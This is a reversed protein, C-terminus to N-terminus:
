VGEALPGVRRLHGPHQRGRLHGSPRGAWWGRLSLRRYRRQLGAGASQRRRDVLVTAGDPTFAIGRPDGAFQGPGSGESGFRLQEAGGANFVIIERDRANVVYLDSTGPRVALQRPENLGAAFVEIFQGSTTFKQVRDSDTTYVVEGTAGGPLAGQGVAVGYVTQFQGNGSGLTGWSRLYELDGGFVQVRNNASDAVYVAGSADSSVARAASLEGPATGQMGGAQAVIAGTTRDVALVRYRGPDVVYYRNATARIDVPYMDALAPGLVDREYQPLSASVSSLEFRATSNTSWKGAIDGTRAQLWYSM